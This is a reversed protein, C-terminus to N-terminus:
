NTEHFKELVEKAEERVSYWKETGRNIWRFYSDTKSIRQIKNLINNEKLFCRSCRRVTYRREIEDDSDLLELMKARVLDKKIKVVNKYKGVYECLGDLYYIRHELHYADNSAMKKLIDNFTGLDNSGESALFDAIQITLKPSNRIWDFYYIQIGEIKLKVILDLLGGLTEGYGDSWNKRYKYPDRQWASELIFRSKLKEIIGNDKKYAGYEKDIITIAKDLEKWDESAIWRLLDSEGFLTFPSLFLFFLCSVFLKKLNM